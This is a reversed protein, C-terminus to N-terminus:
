IDQIQEELWDWLKTGIASEQTDKSATGVTTWPIVYKGNLKAGEESAGAYLPALAGQEVNAFLLKGGIKRAVGLIHSHLDTEIVGPHVSTSVIGHEGYRRAFELAIVIIAFKSQTYHWMSNEKRRARGDKLTDFNIGNRFAHLSSSLSVIRVTGPPSSSATRLMLPLLRKTFLFHGLANVGFQLDYGEVTTETMPTAMVGANNFLIDLRTEMSLFEQVAATIVKLDALDLKLFVAKRGTLRYLDEIADKAKDINRTAIYVKANKELLVKSIEKGIGRNAGTVIVVKGSMDPIQDVTFTTKKPWIGQVQHSIASLM